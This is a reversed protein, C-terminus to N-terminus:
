QIRKEELGYVEAQTIEKVIDEFTKVQARIAQTQRPTLQTALEALLCEARIRAEHTSAPHRLVGLACELAQETEGARAQLHALNDLVLLLCKDRLYNLLQVKPDVPGAFM